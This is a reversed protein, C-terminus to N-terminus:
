EKTYCSVGLTNVAELLTPVVGRHHDIVEHPTVRTAYYILHMTAFIITSTKLVFYNCLNSCTIGFVVNQVFILLAYM